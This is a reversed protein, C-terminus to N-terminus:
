RQWQSYLKRAVNEFSRHLNEHTTVSYLTLIKQNYIPDDDFSVIVRLRLTPKYVYLTSQDSTIGEPFFLKPVRYLSARNGDQLLSILYNMKEAVKKQEAPSLKRYEKEFLETRDVQIDM